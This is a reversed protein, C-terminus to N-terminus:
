KLWDEYKIKITSIAPRDHPNVILLSEILELTTKDLKNWEDISIINKNWISWVVDDISMSGNDFLSTNACIEYILVGLAWIDNELLIYNHCIQKIEKGHVIPSTDDYKIFPNDYSNYLMQITPYSGSALCLEPPLYQLTGFGIKKKRDSNAIIDEKSIAFGFDILRYSDTKKDYVINELKLDGYRYGISHLYSLGNIIDRIVHKQEEPSMLATNLTDDDIFYSPADYKPFVIHDMDGMVYYGIYEGINPHTGIKEYVLRENNNYGLEKVIYWTGNYKVKYVTNESSKFM